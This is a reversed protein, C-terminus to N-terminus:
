HLTANKDIYDTAEVKEGKIFHMMAKDGIHEVVFTDAGATMMTQVDDVTVGVHGTPSCKQMLDLIQEADMEAWDDVIDAAFTVVREGGELEMNLTTGEIVHILKKM